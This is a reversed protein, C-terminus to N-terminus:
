RHLWPEAARVGEHASGRCRRTGVRLVVPNASSEKVAADPQNNAGLSSGPSTTPISGPPFDNVGNKCSPPDKKSSSSSRKFLRQSSLGVSFFIKPIRKGYICERFSLYVGWHQHFVGGPIYSGVRTTYSSVVWCGWCPSNAPHRLELRGVALEGAPLYAHSWVLRWFPAVATCASICPWSPKPAVPPHIILEM